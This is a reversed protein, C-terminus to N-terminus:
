RRGVGRFLLYLFMPGGLFSTIAGIPLIMPPIALRAVVDSLLLIISGAIATAPLLHRNDAGIFRRMIHPAILGIFSIIGVFSVVTATVLTGVVMTTMRVRNANVGLAMASSEGSEMANYNWRHHVFFAASLLTVVAALRLEGYSVRGLDGFTWFVVAAIQTDSAFYQLLTTGASFMASLAVGALVMGEPTIQRFTALGLIVVASAMAGGFASLTVVYPNSINIADSVNASTTAGAGFVIIGLAAGFAAGQAVGLTSPSALPNRLVSQFAAGAMALGAGGVVAILVRPMRIQWILNASRADGQGLLAAVTQSFPMRAAGISLAWVMIVALLILSVAIVVYKGRVYTRYQGLPRARARQIDTDIEGM